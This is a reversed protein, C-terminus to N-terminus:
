RRRDAQKNTQKDPSLKSTTPLYHYFVSVIQVHIIEEEIDDPQEIHLDDPEKTSISSEGGDGEGKHPSSKEYERAKQVAREWVAELNKQPNEADGRIRM